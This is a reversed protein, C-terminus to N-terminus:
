KKYKIKGRFKIKKINKKSKLFSKWKKTNPVTLKNAKTKKLQLFVGAAMKPPKSGKFVFNVNNNYAFAYKGISTINKPIIVKRLSRQYSFASVGIETVSSSFSITKLSPKRNKLDKNFPNRAVYICYHGVNKVKAGFNITKVSYVERRWPVYRINSWKKMKGNNNKVFPNLGVNLVRNGYQYAYLLNKGGNNAGCFDILVKGAKKDSSKSMHGDVYSYTAKGLKINKTIGVGNDDFLYPVGNVTYFGKQANGGILYQYKGEDNKTIGTGSDTMSVPALDKSTNKKSTKVLLLASSVTRPAAEGTINRYVLKKSGSRKTFLSTSGGGDLNLANVCGQRQMLVALDYLGIGPSAPEIDITAMIIDGDATIGITQRSEKFGNDNAAIKGNRVLWNGGIAEKVGSTAAGASKIEFTGNSNVAFFPEAKTKNLVNGELILKGKTKGNPYYFDGNVGAIVSGEVGKSKTYATAQTSVPTNGWSKNTWKKAAKKRSAKTSSKKYYNPTSAKFTANVGKNVRLIHARINKGASDTVYVTSERVGNILKYNSRGTESVAKVDTQFIILCLTVIIGFVLLLSIRKTNSM